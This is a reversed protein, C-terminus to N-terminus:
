AGIALDHTDGVPWTGCYSEGHREKPSKFKPRETHWRKLKEEKDGM